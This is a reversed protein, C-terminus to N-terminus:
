LLVSPDLRYELQYEHHGWAEVHSPSVMAAEAAERIAHQIDIELHADDRRILPAIRGITHSWGAWPDEVSLWMRHDDCIGPIGEPGDHHAAIEEASWQQEENVDAVVEDLKRRFKDISDAEDSANESAGPIKRLDELNDLLVSENVGVGDLELRGIGNIARGPGDLANWTKYRLYVYPSQVDEPAEVEYVAWSIPDANHSGRVVIRADPNGHPTKMGLRYLEDETPVYVDGDAVTRAISRLLRERNTDDTMKDSHM